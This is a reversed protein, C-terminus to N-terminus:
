KLNPMMTVKLYEEMPFVMVREACLHLTEARGLHQQGLGIAHCFTALFLRVRLHYMVFPSYVHVTLKKPQNKVTPTMWDNPAPLDVANLGERRNGNM